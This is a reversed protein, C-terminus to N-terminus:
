WDKSESLLIDVEGLICRSFSENGTKPNRPDSHNELDVFIHDSKKQSASMEVQQFTFQRLSLKCYLYLGSHSLLRLCPVHVQQGAWVACCSSVWSSSSQLRPRDHDQSFLQTLWRNVKAHTVNADLTRQQPSTRRMAPHKVTDRVM